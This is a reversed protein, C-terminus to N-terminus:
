PALCRALADSRYFWHRRVKIPSPLDSGSADKIWQVPKGFLEAVDEIPVLYAPSGDPADEAANLNKAEDLLKALRVSRATRQGKVSATICRFYSEIPAEGPYGIGGAASQVDSIVRVVEDEPTLLEAEGSALDHAVIAPHPTAGDSRVFLPWYREGLPHEDSPDSVCPPVAHAGPKDGHPKLWGETYISDGPREDLNRSGTRTVLTEVREAERGSPKPVDPRQATYTTTTM